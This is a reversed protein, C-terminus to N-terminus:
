QKSHHTNQLKGSLYKYGQSSSSGPMNLHTPAKSSTSFPDPVNSQMVSYLSVSSFSQYMQAHEEESQPKAPNVKDAEIFPDDECLDQKAELVCNQLVEKARNPCFEIDKATYYSGQSESGVSDKSSKSYNCSAPLNNSTLCRIPSLRSYINRLM